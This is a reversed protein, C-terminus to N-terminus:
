KAPTLIITFENTKEPFDFSRRINGNITVVCSGYVITGAESGDMPLTLMAQTMEKDLMETSVKERDLRYKKGSPLGDNGVNSELINDGPWMYKMSLKYPALSGKKTEGSLISYPWGEFKVCGLGVLVKGDSSQILLAGAGSTSLHLIKLAEADFKGSIILLVDATISHIALNIPDVKALELKLQAAEKELTAARKRTQEAIKNAEASKANAESMRAASEIKFKELVEDKKSSAKQSLHWAFIGFLAALAALWVAFSGIFSSWWDISNMKKSGENKAITNAEKEMINQAEHHRM